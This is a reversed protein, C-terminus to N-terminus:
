PTSGVLGEIEGALAEGTLPRDTPEPALCHRVVGLIPDTLSADVQPSHRLVHLLANPVDPPMQGYICAGTLAKHLAVGLSWIETARSAPEGRIIAPDLYEMDAGAGLGSLTLGPAMLQAVGVDSLKAAQEGLLINTLKIEQHVHGAEHLEHAGRAAGAVARLVDDRSLPRVPEALSGFPAYEMSYFVTGDQRGVEYLRALHPSSVSALHRLAAVLRQFSDDTFARDLVKLAVQPADIGLRHPPVALLFRGRGLPGVISYDALIGGTESM